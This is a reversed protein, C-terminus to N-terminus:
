GPGTSYPIFAMGRQETQWLLGTLFRDMEFHCGLLPPLAHGVLDVPPPQDYRRQSPNVLGACGVTVREHTEGGAGDQKGVTMLLDKVGRRVFKRNGNAVLAQRQRERQSVQCKEAFEDGSCAQRDAQERANGGRHYEDLHHDDHNNELPRVPEEPGIPTVFVRQQPGSETEGDKKPSPSSPRDIAVDALFKLRQPALVAAALGAPVPELSGGGFRTACRKAFSKGAPPDKMTPFISGISSTSNKLSRTVIARWRWSGCCNPRRGARAPSKGGAYRTPARVPHSAVCSRWTQRPCPEASRM